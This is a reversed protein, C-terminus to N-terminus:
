AARQPSRPHSLSAFMTPSPIGAMRPLPHGHLLVGFRRQDVGRLPWASRGPERRAPAELKQNLQEAWRADLKRSSPDRRQHEDRFGVSGGDDLRDLPLDCPFERAISSSAPDIGVLEFAVDRAPLVRVTVFARCGALLM